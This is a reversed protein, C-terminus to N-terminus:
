ISCKGIWLMVNLENVTAMYVNFVDAIILKKVINHPFYFKANQIM